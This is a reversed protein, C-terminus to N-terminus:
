AYRGYNVPASWREGPRLGALRDEGLKALYETHDATGRVWEDLWQDLRVPDRSLDDWDLYFRNDRDQYGQAFSPHCGWPEVVVADVILETVLTRNPDARIVSEEVLEECVVIVSRAAFAAERQCGLLGWVQANGRADARQVHIVTVDPNIAPVVFTEEGTYPDTVTAILPNVAPLDSGRFSKIPLFSLGAAGAQYRTTLGFHTWEEIELRGAEVERRGVQLSGVGPNGMWSFVLKRVCGAAIMQDAILDPTLRVLTLDRRQQRIIEHGVAHPILHTFGEICVVAGDPVHEAVAQRMSMVKSEM